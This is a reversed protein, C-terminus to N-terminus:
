TAVAQSAATQATTVAAQATTAKTQAAAVAKAWEGSGTLWSWFLQFGSTSATQATSAQAVAASHFAYACYAGACLALVLVCTGVAFWIRKKREQMEKESRNHAVIEELKQIEGVMKQRLDHYRQGLDQMKDIDFTAGDRLKQIAKDRCGCLDEGM